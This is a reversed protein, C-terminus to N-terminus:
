RQRSASGHRGSRFVASAPLGALAALGARNGWPRCGPPPGRHAPTSPTHLPICTAAPAPPAFRRGLAHRRLHPLASCVKGINGAPRYHAFCRKSGQGATAAQGVTATCRSGSDTAAPICRLGGARLGPTTRWFGCAISAPNGWCVPKLAPAPLCSCPSGSGRPPAACLSAPVGARADPGALQACPGRRARRSREPSGSRLPAPRSLVRANPVLAGM